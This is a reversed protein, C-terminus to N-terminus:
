ADLDEHKGTAVTISDKDVERSVMPKKDIGVKASLDCSLLEEFEGFIMTKAAQVTNKLCMGMDIMEGSHRVNEFVERSLITSHAVPAIAAAIFVLNLGEDIWIFHRLLLVSLQVGTKVREVGFALNAEMSQVVVTRGDEWFAESIANFEVGDGRACFFRSM